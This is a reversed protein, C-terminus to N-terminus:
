GERVTISSIIKNFIKESESIDWSTPSILTVQIIIDENNDCTGGGSLIIAGDPDIVRTYFGNFFKNTITETGLYKKIYGQDLGWEMKDEVESLLTKIIDSEDPVYFSTVILSSSSSEIHYGVVDISNTPDPSGSYQRYIEESQISYQEEFIKIETENFNKWDIPISIQFVGVQVEKYGSDELKSLKNESQFKIQERSSNRNCSISSLYIMCTMIFVLYSQLHLKRIYRQSKSGIM